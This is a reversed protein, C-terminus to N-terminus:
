EEVVKLTSIDIEKNKKIKKFYWKDNKMSYVLNWNSRATIKRERGKADTVFFTFGEEPELAVRNGAPKYIIGEYSVSWEEPDLGIDTFRYDGWSRPYKGYEEYFDEILRIMGDTIEGPTSGLSTLSDTEQAPIEGHVSCMVRPYGPDKPDSIIWVYVGGSPCKYIEDISLGPENQELFHAREAMDINYRNSLCAAAQARQRYQAYRPIAISALAAMILIVVMLELLTFGESSDTRLTKM